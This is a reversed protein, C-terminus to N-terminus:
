RCLCYYRITNNKGNKKTHVFLSEIQELVYSRTLEMGPRSVLVSFVNKAENYLAVLVDSNSLTKREPAIGLETLWMNEAYLLEAPTLTVVKESPGYGPVYWISTFPPITSGIIM